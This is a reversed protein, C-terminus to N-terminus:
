GGRRIPSNRKWAQALIGAITDRQEYLMRQVSPGDVASIQIIAQPGQAGGGIQAMTDLIFESINRPLVMEKEHLIAPIGGSFSGTLMGGAASAVALGSPVIGGGKLSLGPIVSLVWTALKEAALKSIFDIFSDLMRNLMDEWIEVISKEGHAFDKLITALGSQITSQLTKLNQEAQETEEKTIDELKGHILALAAVTADAQEKSLTGSLLQAQLRAQVEELTVRTLEKELGERAIISEYEALTIESLAKKYEESEAGHEQMMREANAKALEIRRSYYEEDSILKYQHQYELEALEINAQTEATERAYRVRIENEKLRYKEAIKALAEQLATEDKITERARAEEQARDFKLLELEKQLGEEQLQLIDRQLDAMYTTIEDNHRKIAAERLLRYKEEIDALVQARLEANEISEMADTVEKAKDLEMLALEAELGEQRAEILARQLNEAIAQEKKAQENLVAERQLRFWEEAVVADAGDEIMRQKEADLLAIKQETTKANIQDIEDQVQQTIAKREAEHKDHIATLEADMAQRITMKEGAVDVESELTWKNQEMLRQYKNRVEQKEAEEQRKTAVLYDITMQQLAAKRDKALQEPDDKTKTTTEVDLSIPTYLSNITAQKEAIQKQIKDVLDGWRILEKEAKAPDHGTKKYMQWTVNGEKLEGSQIERWIMAWYDRQEIAQKLGPGFLKTTYGSLDAIEQQLKERAAKTKAEMLRNQLTIERELLGINIAIVKGENDRQEVIGPYLQALQEMLTKNDKLLDTYKQTDPNTGKLATSNKKYADVMANLASTNERAKQAQAALNAGSTANQYAKVAAVTALIAAALQFWPNAVLAKAALGIGSLAEKVKAGWLTWAAITATLAGTVGLLQVIGGVLKATTGDLGELWDRLGAVPGKLAAFTDAVADANLSKLKDGITSILGNWTESQEQVMGGFRERIIAQIATLAQEVSGQYSGSRDFVLGKGELLERSIGFDRLREFAEGFDGSKIRGLARVVDNLQVGMAAALNMADTMYTKLDLGYALMARGADLTEEMQYPSTDALKRVYAMAANAAEADKLLVRYSVSLREITANQKIGAGVFMTAGAALAMGIGGLAKFRAELKDADRIMKEVTTSWGSAEAKMKATISGVNYETM